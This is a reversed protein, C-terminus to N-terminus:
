ETATPKKIRTIGYVGRVKEMFYQFAMALGWAAIVVIRGDIRWLFLGCLGAALILAGGLLTLLLSAASFTLAGEMVKIGYERFYIDFMEREPTDRPVNLYIPSKPVRRDHLELHSRADIVHGVNEWESFLTAGLRIGESSLRLEQVAFILAFTLFSAASSLGLITACTWRSFEPPPGALLSATGQWAALLSVAIAPWMAFHFAWDFLPSQWWYSRGALTVGEQPKYRLPECTVLASAIAPLIGAGLYIWPTWEAPIRLPFLRGPLIAISFIVIGGWLGIGVYQMWAPFTRGVVEREVILPEPM